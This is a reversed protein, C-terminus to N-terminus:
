RDTTNGQWGLCLTCSEPGLAAFGALPLEPVDSGCFSNALPSQGRRHKTPVAVGAALRTAPLTHAPCTQM